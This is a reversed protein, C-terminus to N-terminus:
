KILHVHYELRQSLATLTTVLQLCSSNNNLEQCPYFVKEEGFHGPWSQPGCLGRNLPVLIFCSPHSVSWEGGDVALTLICPSIGEGV